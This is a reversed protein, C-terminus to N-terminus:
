PGQRGKPITELLQKFDPRARLPALDAEARLAATDAFGKKLAERLFKMAQDGYSRRLAEREEAPLTTDEAAVPMCRALLRAAIVHESAKDPFSAPVLAAHRAAEAHKKMRILLDAITERHNRLFELAGAHRPDLKLAAQQPVFAEELLKLAGPLDGQDRLVEGLNHLTGGLENLYDANGPFEQVLRRRSALNEEHIKKAEPLKGAEWLVSGLNNLSNYLERRRAPNDTARALRRQLAVAKEYPERAAAFKKARLFGNGLYYYARALREQYEAKAPFDRALDELLAIASRNDAEEAEQKGATQAVLTARLIYHSALLSRSAVRGPEIELAKQQHRLAEDLLPGARASAKLKMLLSAHNHYIIGFEAPYFADQPRDKCLQTFFFVSREYAKEAEDHQKSDALARGLNGYGLALLKPFDGLGPAQRALEERLETVRRLAPVADAPRGQRKRVHGLKSLSEALDNRYGPVAPRADALQQAGSVALQYNDEAAKLQGREELVGGLARHAQSLDQQHDVVEPLEAFLAQRLELAGRLWKEAEPLRKTTTMLVGLNFQVLGAQRRHSPVKPWETMLKRALELAQHYSKEAPGYQKKDLLLNALNATAVVVGETNAPDQPYAAALKRFLELSRGLDAEADELRGSKHHLLALDMLFGAQDRTYRPQEPHQKALKELVTLAEKQLPLSEDPRGLGRLEVALYGLASALESAYTAVAPHDQALKRRLQVAQQRLALAERTRGLKELIIRGNDLNHALHRSYAPVQPHSAVLEQLLARSRLILKEAPGREGKQALVVALNDNAAALSHVHQPVGPYDNALKERIELAGQFAKFSEELRGLDRMAKGVNDHCKALSDRYQANQPFAETLKEFLDRAPALKALAEAHRKAELLFVGFRYHAEAQHQPLTALYPFGSALKRTLDLALRYAQEAERPQGTEALLNALNLQATQAADQYSAVEPYDAALRATIEHSKRLNDLAEAPRNGTVLLAALNNYSRALESHNGPFGPYDRVLQRSVDVAKQCALLAERPRGQDDLIRHLVRYGEALAPRFFEPAGKWTPQPKELLELGRRASQEAEKLKGMSALPRSRQIANWAVGHVYNPIAANRRSLELFLQEAQSYTKEAQAFLGRAHLAAALAGHVVALHQKYRLNRPFASVQKQCLELAQAMAVEAEEAKGIDKLLKGLVLTSQALEDGLDPLDKFDAALQRSLDLARRAAKEADRYKGAARALESFNSWVGALDRRYDAVQPASAFLKEGDERALLLEKEAEALRNSSVLLNALEGRCAVLTHRYSPLNPFDKVLKLCVELSRRYTEEAEPLRDGQRQLNALQQMARALGSRYGREQPFLKALGKGLAVAGKLQDEAEGLRGAERLLVGLRVRTLSLEQLFRADSVTGILREQVQLAGQYANEAEPLRGADKLVQGLDSLAQAQFQPYRRNDPFDASLKALLDRAQSLAPEAEPSRVEMAVIGRNRYAAALEYRYNADSPYEDTLAQLIATGKKFAAGAEAHQGLQFRIAAVGHYARATGERVEPDDGKDDLFGKYYELADELLQRRILEMRPENLLRDKDEAVRTLLKDVAERAQRLNLDARGQQRRAEKENKVARDKEQEARDKEQATLRQEHSVLATSIALAVVATVLLVAAGAVLPRHQRGWRAVRAPLPEPYAQVPEDALWRRVEDALAGASGYRSAPEKALAKLCVAELAAPVDAQLRRPPAPEVERVQRLVDRADAGRFPPRDTLIQYLIAGLGYVDTRPGVLDSRGAAQEPAMFAPTGVVSGAGTAEPAAGLDGLVATTAAEAQGVLKAMGWDLVIVEGYDGLVVNQGKLDRHIVGRAHAYAVANCVGVFAGLLDRLALSSAQGARLNEHYAHAADSLTRGQIFRMVYYPQGDEPRRALEYVPVIGPHELQGTVRAEVLFRAWVSPGADRDPRLEKLAVERGLAADHALWVQGIGGKAHLRTRTYRESGDTIINGGTATAPPGPTSEDQTVHDVTAAPNHKQNGLLHALAACDAATVWGRRQLYDALSLTQRESQAQALQGADILGAQLALMGFRRDADSAM